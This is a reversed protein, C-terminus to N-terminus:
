LTRAANTLAGTVNGTNLTGQPEFLLLEADGDLAVPKHEVGKPVVFLEGPELRVVRERGEADKLHMDLVGNVVFFLEDVEAHHHWVFAGSARALKVEQGNLTAVIHPTWPESIQAFASELTVKDMM